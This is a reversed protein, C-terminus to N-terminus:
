ESISVDDLPPVDAGFLISVKQVDKPPATVRAWFKSSEGASLIVNHRSGVRRGEVRVQEFQKKTKLEQLTVIMIDSEVFGGSLIQIMQSQSTNTITGKILVTEDSTRRVTDVVIEGNTFETKLNEAHAAGSFLIGVLCLGICFTRIM